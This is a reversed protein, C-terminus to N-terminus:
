LASAGRPGHANLELFWRVTRELGDSLSTGASWGLVDRALQTDSWSRRVDGIRPRGYVVIPAPLHLRSAVATLADVLENISTERSTAIHFLSGGVDPVTAARVIADLLDEVYIFDRTQRGDGHVVLPERRLWCKIFHAVVSDKASSYPGYVNGFRLSVTELGFARAYAGAYAEASLKGAGYPTAPRPLAEESVPPEVSGVAAASSALVVRAANTTRAGELVHVTGSVNVELDRLPDELSQVIGANAALHVVVEAGRSVRAVIARDEVPATVVEIGQPWDEGLGGVSRHKWEGIPLADLSGCSLNDLIRVSMPGAALLHRVLASGIFGCGGTVLWRNPLEAARQFTQRTM